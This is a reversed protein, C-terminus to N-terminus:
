PILSLFRAKEVAQGRRQVGLKECVRAIHTKVTHPSIALRRAMEKNSDGAALTALIEVERATLGLSRIAADNPQFPRRDGIRRPLLVRGLWVGLAVGFLAVLLAYIEGSYARAFYRYELWSLLTAGLGLVLAYILVTRAMADHHGFRAPSALWTM